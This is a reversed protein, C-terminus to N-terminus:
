EAGELQKITGAQLGGFLFGVQWTYFARFQKRIVDNNLGVADDDIEDVFRSAYDWEAFDMMTQMEGLDDDDLIQRFKGLLSDVVQEIEMGFVVDFDLLNAM